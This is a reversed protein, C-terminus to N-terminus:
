LFGEPMRCDSFSGAAIDFDHANQAEDLEGVRVEVRALRFSQAPNCCKGRELGRKDIRLLGGRPRRINYEERAIEHLVVRASVRVNM